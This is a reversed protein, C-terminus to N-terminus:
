PSVSLLVDELSTSVTYEPEADEPFRATFINWGARFELDDGSSPAVVVDKDVYILNFFGTPATVMAIGSYPTDTSRDFTGNANEDLYVSLHARAYSADDPTVSYADQLGPLSVENSRFPALEAVEGTLRVSFTAGEASPTPTAAGVERGWVGNQDVVHAGVGVRVGEPFPELTELVGAVTAGQQAVAVGLGGLLLCICVTKLKNM